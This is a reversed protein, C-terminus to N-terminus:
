QTSTCVRKVDQAPISKYFMGLSHSFAGTGDMHTGPYLSVSYVMLLTLKKHLQFWREVLQPKKSGVYVHM